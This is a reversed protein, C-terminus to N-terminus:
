SPEREPNSGVVHLYSLGLGLIVWFIRSSHLPDGVGISGIGFSLLAICLPLAYEDDGELYLSFLQDVLTGYALVFLCLGFVGVEGALQALWSHPSVIRGTEVPSWAAATQFTGIGYGLPQQLLTNGAIELLQWRSWISFSSSQSFPNSTVQPLLLTVASVLGISSTLIPPWTPVLLRIKERFQWLVVVAVFSLSSALLGARGRNYLIMGLSAALVATAALRGSIPANRLLSWTALPVATSLLFVFYNRNLYVSSTAVEDAYPPASLRSVPLHTGSWLEWFSILLAISVIALFSASLLPYEDERRLLSSLGMVVILSSVVHFGARVSVGLDVTWFLTTVAYLVFLCVFVFPTSLAISTRHVLLYVALLLGAIWFVHIDFFSFPGIRVSPFAGNLVVVVLLTAVSALRLLGLGGLPFSTLETGDGDALKM